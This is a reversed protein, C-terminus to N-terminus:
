WWIQARRASIAALGIFQKGVEQAVDGVKAAVESVLRPLVQPEKIWQRTAACSQKRRQNQTSYERLSYIIIAVLPFITSVTIM